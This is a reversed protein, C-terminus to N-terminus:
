REGPKKPTPDLLFDLVGKSPKSPDLMDSLKVVTGPDPLTGPSGFFPNPPTGTPAVAPNTPGVLQSLFYGVPHRLESEIWDWAAKPLRGQYTPNLECVFLTDQNDLYQQIAEVVQQPTKSTSLLWTSTMYHWWKGSDAQKKIAEFLDHYDKPTRLDYTVILVAM